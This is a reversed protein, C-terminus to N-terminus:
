KEPVLFSGSGKFFFLLIFNNIYYIKILNKSVDQFTEVLNGYSEKGKFHKRLIYYMASELLVGDNVAAEGLNNYRYWCPQGRRLLSRDQIDDLVLIYAQMQTTFTEINYVM